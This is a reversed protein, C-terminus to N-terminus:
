SPVTSKSLGPLSLYRLAASHISLTLRVDQVRSKGPLGFYIPAHKHFVGYCTCARDRTNRNPLAAARKGKVRLEATSGPGAFISVRTRIGDLGFEFM